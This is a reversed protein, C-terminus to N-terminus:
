DRAAVAAPPEPLRLLAVLRDLSMAFAELEFNQPDDHGNRIGSDIAAHFAPVLWTGARVSAVTYVLALRDYQAATFGPTPAMFDNRRGRRPLPRRPQVMEVHLFLGKLDTGFRPAREFKTARWAEGFDHGRLMAGARNIVVHANEWGDSCRHRGLNNIRWSEDMDAPWARRGLNPGSTDHIVFYRAAPAEAHNDRARSVPLWLSAAFDWELGLRSLHGSLVEREPMDTAQGIRTAFAAPLSDRVPGLKGLPAVPRVLCAAQQLPDGAFSAKDADFECPGMSKLAVPPLPRRPKCIQNAAVPSAAGAALAAVLLSGTLRRWSPGGTRATGAEAIRAPLRLTEGDFTDRM